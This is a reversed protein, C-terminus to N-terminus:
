SNWLGPFLDIDYTRRPFAQTAIEAFTLEGSASTGSLTVKRLLLGEIQDVVNALDDGLYAFYTVKIASTAQKLYPLIMGSVSDIKLEAPTPGSDDFGPPTCEFACAIATVKEGTSLVVEVDFEEDAIFYLPKDFAPTNLMIVHRIPQDSPASAYAENKARDSLAM